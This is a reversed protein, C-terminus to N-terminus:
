PFEVEAAEKLYLDVVRQTTLGAKKLQDVTAQVCQQYRTRTFTEGPNLLGMRQWAEEVSERHDLYRNLNMDVFVGRGDLPELDQGDVWAFGTQGSGGTGLSRPFQYYLGLPCSLEPLAIAPNENIGDGDLDGLELLDSRTPPPPTGNEVWDDLRDILAGMVRSLDLIVIDGDRGDELYEGGQHSIGSVEYMRVKDGLGKDQLISATLRKNVLFVGSMWEPLDAVELDRSYLQHSIEITRVFKRREEDLLLLTDKGDKRLVPLFRGGGSDDNLFGDIIPRGNEDANIGPIYNVLRGNMAGGSHGYWYTRRPTEGLRAALLNEALRAFGLLLGTHVNLNKGQVVAGSDLTVPYDGPSGGNRRTKAVAYGRDLMLKEYKSIDVLPQSPNYLQNFPRLSGDEFSGGSGHVTVFLKGNWATRDEPYILTLGSGKSAEYRLIGHFRRYHNGSQTFAFEPASVFHNLRSGEKVVWGSLSGSVGVDLRRYLRGEHSVRVEEILADEQGVWAGNIQKQPVLFSNGSSSVSRDSAGQALLYPTMVLIAALSLVFQRKM